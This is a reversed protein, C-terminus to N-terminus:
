GVLHSKPNQDECRNQNNESQKNDKKFKSSGYFCLRLLRRRNFWERWSMICALAALVWLIIVVTFVM